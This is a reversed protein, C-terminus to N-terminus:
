VSILEKERGIVFIYDTLTQLSEIKTLSRRSATGESIERIKGVKGSHRGKVIIAMNGKEFRIFDIIKHEPLSLILTDKTNYSNENVLINGGDHLNLQIIGNGLISKNMIRCLKISSEKENIEKPILGKKSPMIRFHKKAKPIDVIDMLGVGYKPDKRPKKDVLILGNHIIRKAERSTDAYGLIDRVLILLPICRNKPHAGPNPTVVWRKTKGYGAAIRKTHTM